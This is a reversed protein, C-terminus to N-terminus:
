ARFVIFDISSVNGGAASLSLETLLIIDGNHLLALRVSDDNKQKIKKGNTRRASNKKRDKKNGDQLCDNRVSEM